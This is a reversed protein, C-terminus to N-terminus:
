AETEKDIFKIDPPLQSLEIFIFYTGCPRASSPRSFNSVTKSKVVTKKTVKVM